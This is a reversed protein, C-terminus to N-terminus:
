NYPFFRVCSKQFALTLHGSKRFPEWSVRFRSVVSKPDLHFFFINEDFYSEFDCFSWGGASRRCCAVVALGLRFVVDRCSAESTPIAYALSVPTGSAAPGLVPKLFLNKSRSSKELITKPVVMKQSEYFFIGM